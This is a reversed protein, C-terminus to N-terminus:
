TLVQVPHKVLKTLTFHQNIYITDVANLMHLFKLTLITIGTTTPELGMLWGMGMMSVGRSKQYRPKQKTSSALLRCAVKGM